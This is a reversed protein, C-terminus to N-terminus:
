CEDYKAAAAAADVGEERPPGDLPRIRPRPKLAFTGLLLIIFSVCSSAPPRPGGSLLEVARPEPAEPLVFGLGPLM